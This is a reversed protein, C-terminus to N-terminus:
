DLLRLIVLSTVPCAQGDQSRPVGQQAGQQLGSLIRGTNGRGATELRGCTVDAPRSRAGAGLQNGLCVM